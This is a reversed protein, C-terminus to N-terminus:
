CISNTVKKDILFLNSVALNLGVVNTDTEFQKNVEWIEFNLQQNQKDNDFDKVSVPIFYLDMHVSQGSHKDKDVSPGHCHILKACM